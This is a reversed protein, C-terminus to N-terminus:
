LVQLLLTILGMKEYHRLMRATVDFSQTVQSITLEM